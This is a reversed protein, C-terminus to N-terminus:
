RQAEDDREKQREADEGVRGEWQHVLEHEAPEAAVELHAGVQNRGRDVIREMVQNAAAVAAANLLKERTQRLVLAQERDRKTGRIGTIGDRGRCHRRLHAAGLQAAKCLRRAIQQLCRGTRNEYRHAGQNAAPPEHQHVVHAEDGAAAALGAVVEEEEKDPEAEGYREDRHHDRLQGPAAPHLTEARQQATLTQQHYRSPRAPAAERSRGGLESGDHFVQARQDCIEFGVMAGSVLFLERPSGGGQAVDQVALQAALFHHDHRVALGVDM